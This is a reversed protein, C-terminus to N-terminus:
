FGVSKKRKDSKGSSRSKPKPEDIEYYDDTTANEAILSNIRAKRAKVSKLEYPDEEMQAVRSWKFPASKTMSKEDVDAQKMQRSRQIKQLMSADDTLEPVENNDFKAAHRGFALDAAGLTAKAREIEADMDVMDFM